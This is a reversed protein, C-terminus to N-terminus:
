LSFDACCVERADWRLRPAGASVVPARLAEPLDGLNQDKLPDRLPQEPAPCLGALALSPRQM